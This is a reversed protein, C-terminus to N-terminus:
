SINITGKNGFADTVIEGDEGICRVMMVGRHVTVSTFTSVDLRVFKLTRHRSDRLHSDGAFRYIFNTLVDLAPGVTSGATYQGLPGTVIEHVAPEQQPNLRSFMVSNISSSMFVVNRVKRRHIFALITARERWYGPWHESPRLFYDTMVSPSVIIKFNAQSSRLGRLLWRRQVAGLRSRKTGPRFSSRDTGHPGPLVACTAPDSFPGECTFNSSVGKPRVPIIASSPQRQDSYQKLDLLFVEVDGATFKRFLRQNPNKLVGHLPDSAALVHGPTVANMQMFERTGFGYLAEVLHPAIRNKITTAMDDLARPTGDGGSYDNLVENDDWTSFFPMSRLSVALGDIGGAYKTSRQEAYLSRYYEESPSAKRGNWPKTAFVTDGAFLGFHMDGRTAYKKLINAVTFPPQNPATIVVFNLPRTKSSPLTRFSALPSNQGAPSTFRYFYRSGPNLNSVLLKATYAGPFRRPDLGAYAYLQITRFLLPETLNRNRWVTVRATTSPSTRAPRCSPASFSAQVYASTTTADGSHIDFSCASVACLLAAFHVLRSANM